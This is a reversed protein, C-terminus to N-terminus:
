ETFHNDKLKGGFSELPTKDFQTPLKNTLLEQLIVESQEQTETKPLLAYIKEKEQSTLSELITSSNNKIVSAFHDIGNM